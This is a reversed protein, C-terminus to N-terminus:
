VVVLVRKHTGYPNPAVESDPDNQWQGDVLFRYEYVGPTLLLHTKWIGKKDQRLPCAHTEWNNFSGCLTVEKAEPAKLRFKAQKKRHNIKRSM